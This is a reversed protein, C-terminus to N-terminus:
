ACAPCFAHLEDDACLRLTWGAEDKSGTRGCEYCSLSGDAGASHVRVVVSGNRAPKLGAVVQDLHERLTALKEALEDLTPGTAPDPGDFASGESAQRLAV